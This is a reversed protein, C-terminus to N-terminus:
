LRSGGTLYKRYIERFDYYCIIKINAVYECHKKDNNKLM